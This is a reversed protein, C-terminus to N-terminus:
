KENVTIQAGPHLKALGDAAIKDGMDVGSEVLVNAGIWQTAIVPRATVTNNAEVVYVFKGKEGTMLTKQPVYLTNKWEM